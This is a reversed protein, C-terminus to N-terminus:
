DWIGDGARYFWQYIERELLNAQFQSFKLNNELLIKLFSANWLIQHCSYYRVYDGVMSECMEKWQNVM